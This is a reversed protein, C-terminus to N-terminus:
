GFVKPFHGLALEALEIAAQRAKGWTLGCAEDIIVDGLEIGDFEVAYCNISGESKVESKKFTIRKLLTKSM